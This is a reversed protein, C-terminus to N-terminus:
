DFKQECDYLKRIRKICSKPITIAQSYMEPNTSLAVRIDAESEELVIGVTVCSVPCLNAIDEKTQWLPNSTSCPDVWEVLVLRM